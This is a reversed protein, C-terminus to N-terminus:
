RGHERGGERDRGDRFNISPRFYFGPGNVYGPPYYGPAHAYNPASEYAYPRPSQYVCRCLAIGTGSLLLTARMSIKM